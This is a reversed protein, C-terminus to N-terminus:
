ESFISLLRLCAYSFRPFGSSLDALWHHSHSHLCRHPPRSLFQFFFSDLAKKTLEFDFPENNHETSTTAPSQIHEKPETQHSICINYITTKRKLLTTDYKIERCASVFTVASAPTPINSFRRRNSQITRTADNGVIRSGWYFYGFKTMKEKKRFQTIRILKIKNYM